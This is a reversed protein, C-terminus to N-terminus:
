TELCCAVGELGLGCKKLAGGSRGTYLRASFIDLRNDNKATTSTRWRPEQPSSLPRARVGGLSDVPVDAFTTFIAHDRSVKTGRKRQGEQRFHAPQYPLPKGAVSITNIIRVVADPSNSENVNVGRNCKQWAGLNAENELSFSNISIASLIESSPKLSTPYSNTHM